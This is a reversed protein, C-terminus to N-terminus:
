STANSAEEHMLKDLGEMEETVYYWAYWSGKVFQVDQYVVFGKHKANNRLMSRRLGRPTKASVFDLIHNISLPQQLYSAM